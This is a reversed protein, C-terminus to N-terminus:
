ECDRRRQPPDDGVGKPPHRDAAPLLGGRGRDHRQALQPPPRLLVRRRSQLALHHQLAHLLLRLRHHASPLHQGHPRHPLHGQRGSVTLMPRHHSIMLRSKMMPCGSECSSPRPYSCHMSCESRGVMFMQYRRKLAIAVQRGYTIIFSSRKPVRRAKDAIVNQKFEKAGKDYEMKLAQRYAETDEKVAKGFTSEEWLAGFEEPTSPITSEFGPRIARSSKDTVSVLFDGISQGFRREFGLDHFYILGEDYTGFFVQRGGYLVTIKDFLKVISDSAQYLCAMTVSQGVDTSIRLAKVFELATSADSLNAPRCPSCPKNLAVVITSATCSCPPLPLVFRGFVSRSV